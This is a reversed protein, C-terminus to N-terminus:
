KDTEAGAKAAMKSIRVTRDYHATAVQIGDQHLDFDRATDPVKFKHFTADNDANWFLLQGGSKGGNCGILFGDSHFIPRWGIGEVGESIHSRLLTQSEWDFRLFLPQSVAGLPNTAKHLGAFALHKGDPSLDIGRVGGFDVQQGGNYTNLATGDFSRVKKGSAVEWQHVQGKLDGSLLFEGSPHFFTSYVDREHGGCQRVFSGDAVNWLKVVKDNGASALLSGDSSVSVARIWGEHAKVERIPEPKEALAAWWILTDDYGATILTEGDKSFAIGRVWSDHKKLLTKGADEADTELDWRVVARDEGTAFLFRGAPHFRCTILPADAKLERAVHTQVPDAKVM